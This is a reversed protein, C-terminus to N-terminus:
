GYHSLLHDLAAGQVAQAVQSRMLGIDRLDRDSMARLHAIAAREVRWGMYTVCWQKLTALVSFQRGATSQAAPASCIASMMM